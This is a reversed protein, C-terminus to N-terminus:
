ENDKYHFSHLAFDNHVGLKQGNLIKEGPQNNKFEVTKWLERQSQWQFEKMGPLKWHILLEWERLNKCQIIWRTATSINWRRSCLKIM